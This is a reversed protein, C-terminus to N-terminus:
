TPLAGVRLASPAIGEWRKFARRFNAQDTYGLRYAIEQLSFASNKLYQLALRHRVQDIIARYSTGEDELRRHLTRPAMHLMRASAQLSPLAGSAGLMSRQIRATLSERATFADLETQCMAAANALSQADAASLPTDLTQTNLCLVNTAANYHVPCAFLEQALSQYPTAVAVFEVAQVTQTGPALYDFVNRVALMVTELILLEANGLDAAPAFHLRAHAGSEDFRVTILNTRLPLFREVLQIAQRLSGSNMVAFALTGHTNMRLRRGLLLGIAPEETHRMLSHVMALYRATSLAVTPLALHQPTIDAAQLWALPDVGMEQTLEMLARLYLSPVQIANADLPPPTQPM